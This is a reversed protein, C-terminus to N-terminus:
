RWIYLNFKVPKDKYVTFRNVRILNDVPTNNISGVYATPSGQIELGDLIFYFNDKVNLSRRLSDYDSNYFNELKTQNVNGNSLIGPDNDALILEAATNGQYLLDDLQNTSQDFYNVAYFYLIIIGTMFIMVAIIVDLSWIQGRKNEM